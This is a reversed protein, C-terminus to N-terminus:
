PAGTALRYPGNFVLELDDVAIRVKIQGRDSETPQARGTVRRPQGRHNRADGAFEITEGRGLRGLDAASVTIAIAGTESWFFWPFVRAEYTAAFREGERRFESTKLTVNGVYISTRLPPIFARDPPASPETAAAALALAAGFALLLLLRM